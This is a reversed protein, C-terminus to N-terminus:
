REIKVQGKIDSLGDYFIRSGLRKYCEFPTEGEECAIMGFWDYLDSKGTFKSM